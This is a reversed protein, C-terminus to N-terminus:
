SFTALVAAVFGNSSRIAAVRVLQRYEVGTLAKTKSFRSPLSVLRRRASRL